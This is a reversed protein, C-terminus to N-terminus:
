IRYDQIIRKLKLKLDEGSDFVMQENTPFPIARNRILNLDDRTLARKDGRFRAYINDFVFGSDIDFSDIVEKNKLDSFIVSAIIQSSKQQAFEFLRARVRVIKDEKLKNGLSDTKINGDADKQYRWGDVIDQERIIERESVREPSINIRALQLQMAYDYDAEPNPNAYYAMWFQNLGYTDFDLLADELRRPIVQRTKNEISVAVHITGREHAEDMLERTKEYNPNINEIYNLVDYAERITAKDDSELLEIGTEYFHDSVNDRAVALESSYDQFDFPVNRGRYQLPMLPKVAQQRKNLAVYTEYIRQFYEPNKSAKLEKIAQWDRENAKVYADKLLAVYDQKRRADKNGKLKNIADYIAENYNGNDVAEAVRKKGSCSLAFVTIIFLLTIKRM